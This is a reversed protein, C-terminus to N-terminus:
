AREGKGLGPQALLSVNGIAKVSSTGGIDIVNRETIKSTGLPIAGGLGVLTADVQAKTLLINPVRLRDQGAMLRVDNGLMDTNTLRISNDADVVADASAFAGAIFAISLVNAASELDSDSRTAFDINGSLNRIKAGSASITSRMKAQQDAQAVSVALGGVGDVRVKDIINANAYTDVQFVGTKGPAAEVVLEAGQGFAVNAGFRSASTGIDTDASLATISGLGASGSRLSEETASFKSKDAVNDAKITISGANVKSAGILIDAAGTLMTSMSAGSGAFIGVSLNKSTADFNQVRSSSLDLLGVNHVGRDGMRVLTAALIALKSDAGVASILGGSSASARQYTEDQGLARARLVAATVRADDGIEATISGADITTALSTGVSIGTSVALSNSKAMAKQLGRAEVVVQTTDRSGPVETARLLAKVTPALTNETVTGAAAAAILGFSLAAAKVEANTESKSDALVTLTKGTNVVSLGTDSGPVKDPTSRDLAAYTSGRITNFANAGGGAFAVGISISLSFAIATSESDIRADDTARVTIDGAAKVLSRDIIASTNSAIENTATSVGVAVSGGFMGFSAAVSVAFVTSDISSTDSADVTISGDVDIGAGTSSAIFAQTQSGVRNVASAGAGSLAAAVQGGAAAVSGAFVTSDIAQDTIAQVSLDLTDTTNPLALISSREVSAVIRNAATNVLQKWKKTDSYDQTLILDEDTGDKNADVAELEKDGIYEYTENARGGSAPGLRIIEGKKIRKPKDVGSTYTVAGTYGQPDYGIYNRAISVGVSAGIGVQGVGVGVAASVIWADILNTANAKITVDSGARILSDDVKAFADGLIVNVASAGAGAVGLGTQGAALAISAAAATVRITSDSTGLVKVIGKADIDAGHISAEVVGDIVNRALSVGVSIAVGTQGFAAAITAAGAFSNILSVDNAAIDIDGVIIRSPRAGATTSATDIGSQVRVGIQNEAWVGSGSVAVGTQGAAIAASGAVVLADIMQRTTAGINLDGEATIDSDIVLSRVTAISADGVKGFGEQGILNRAVSIGISAGVGTQGAAIAVSIAAVRAAIVADGEATLNVDTKAVVTSDRLIADVGGALSNVAVAGAGSVAIGTKGIGVAMSAAVSLANLNSRTIEIDNGVVELMYANGLGDSVMWSRGAELVSVDLEPRVREWNRTDAYNTRGLDYEVRNKGIYRYIAGGEGGKRYDDVLKVTDGRELRKYDSSVIKWRSTDNFDLKALDTKWDSTGIYEYVLGAFTGSVIGVKDGKDLEQTGDTTAYDWQLSDSSRYLASPRLFDTDPLDVGKDALLQPLAKVVAPDAYDTALQWRATNAFNEKWLEISTEVEVEEWLGEDEFDADSLDISTSSGLYEFLKGVLDGDDHNSAVRIVDGTAVVRRGAETTYQEPQGIFRYVRNPLGGASHLPDVSVTYGAKVKVAPTTIAKWRSDT